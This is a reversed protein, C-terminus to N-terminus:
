IKRQRKTVRQRRREGQEKGSKLHIRKTLMQRKKERQMKGPQLHTRERQIKTM